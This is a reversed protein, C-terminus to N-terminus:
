LKMRVRETVVSARSRIDFQDGKSRYEKLSLIANHVSLFRACHRPTFVGEEAIATAPLRPEGFLSPATGAARCGLSISPRSHAGLASLL